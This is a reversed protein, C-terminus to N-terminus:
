TVPSQSKAFAVNLLHLDTEGFNSQFSARIDSVGEISLAVGNTVRVVGDCERYNSISVPNPTM